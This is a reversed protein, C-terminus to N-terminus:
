HELPVGWTINWIKTGKSNYKVLFVDYGGRSCSNSYGTVYVYGRNDIAVGAGYDKGEGNIFDSWSPEVSTFNPIQGASAFNLAWSHNVIDTKHETDVQLNVLALPSQSFVTTATLTSVLSVLFLLFIINKM